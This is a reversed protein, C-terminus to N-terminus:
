GLEENLNCASVKAPQNRDVDYMLYELEM